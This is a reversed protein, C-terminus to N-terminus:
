LAKQYKAPTVGTQEMFVQHFYKRSNFGCYDAISDVTWDPHERLMRKAEEIRLSTVLTALKGYESHRLWLQLQKNPVHLQRAVMSLTLNHERYAGSEKWQEVAQTIHQSIDDGLTDADGSDGADKTKESHGGEDNMEESEEVRVVDNSIGYSYFSMVCYAICFFLGISFVTLPLGQFFIAFPVMMTLLALLTVSRAMWGLLDRRERDFYEDVARQLRMYEKFHIRFYYGQMLMFLVAGAYEAWQLAQSEGKLPVGDALLTTVLIVANLLCVAGGLLWEKWNVVGRRQVYLMAMNIHLTAPLFLLLNWLVAQTIGMQRFGFIQQLLFQIAIMLTGSAMLWRARGFGPHIASRRPVCVVLMLTLMTMTLMGGFQM